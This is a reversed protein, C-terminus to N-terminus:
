LDKLVKRLREIVIKNEEESGVTIRLCGDCGMEKGRFRVVVGNEEALVRYVRESRVNDPNGSGDKALIPVVVFNADNGGIAPGVGVDSLSSLSQLLATRSALLTNIKERMAVMSQPSLASLALHATPTSINYPAKTNTLVQILPPQAIAVGLSSGSYSIQFAQFRSVSRIAALGFSKSLTQMVCLNAYDKVLSAASTHEGAFDVYAEDVVVIGRFASYDLLSKISSLHISTGTPNGPSCLFIM